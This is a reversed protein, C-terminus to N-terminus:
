DGQLQRGQQPHATDHRHCVLFMRDQQITCALRGMHMVTAIMRGRYQRITRGMRTYVGDGAAVVIGDQFSLVRRLQNDPYSHSDKLNQYGNREKLSGTVRTMWAIEPQALAL